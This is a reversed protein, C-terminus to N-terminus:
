PLMVHAKTNRWGLSDCDTHVSFEITGLNAQNINVNTTFTVVVTSIKTKLLFFPSQEVEIVPFDVWSTRQFSM